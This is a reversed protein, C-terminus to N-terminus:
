SLLLLKSIKWYTASFNSAKIHALAIIFEFHLHLHFDFIYLFGIRPLSTYTAYKLRLSRAV